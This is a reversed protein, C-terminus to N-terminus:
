ERPKVLLRYIATAVTFVQTMVEVVKMITLDSLVFGTGTLVVLVGLALSVLITLLFAWSDQIKFVIKLGQILGVGFLGAFASLLLGLDEVTVGESDIPSSAAILLFTLILLLGIRFLSVVTNKKFM